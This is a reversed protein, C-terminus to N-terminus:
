AVPVLGHKTMVAKIKALDPPGGANAVAAIERFYDPSLRGPTIVSLLKADQGHPNSFGHPVGRPVFCVGGPRIEHAAGGVTFTLVGELGYILEDFERHFHPAPVKAGAPVSFEFSTLAGGTAAADLLFRVTIPGLRIIEPLM